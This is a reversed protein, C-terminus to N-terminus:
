RRAAAYTSRIKLPALGLSNGTSCGVLSVRTTLRCAALAMPSATGGDSSARASSTSRHCRRVSTRISMRCARRLGNSMLSRSSECNSFVAKYNRLPDIQRDAVNMVDWFGAAKRHATRGAAPPGPTDTPTNAPKPPPSDLCSSAHLTQKWHGRSWWFSIWPHGLFMRLLGSVALYRVVRFMPQRGHVAAVPDVARTQSPCHM